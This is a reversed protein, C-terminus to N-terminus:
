QGNREEWGAKKRLGEEERPVVHTEMKKRTEGPEGLQMCPRVPSAGDM